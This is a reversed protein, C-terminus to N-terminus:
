SRISSNGLLVSFGFQPAPPPLGNSLVLLTVKTSLPPGPLFNDSPPFPAACTYQVSCLSTTRLVLSLSNRSVFAGRVLLDLGFSGQSGNVVNM